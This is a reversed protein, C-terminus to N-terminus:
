EELVTLLLAEVLEELQALRQEQTKQPKPAPPTWSWYREFNEAVERASLTGPLRLQREQCTWGEQAGAETQLTTKRIDRRLILDTQEGLPYVQLPAPKTTYYTTEM